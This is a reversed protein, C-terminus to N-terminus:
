CPPIDSLVHKGGSPSCLKTQATPSLIFNVRYDWSDSPSRVVLSGASAANQLMGLRPDISFDTSSNFNAAALLKAGNLAQTGVQTVNCADTTASPPTAVIALTCDCGIVGSSLGVCWASGSGRVSVTVYDNRKAAELKAQAVAEVLDGAAGRVISRERVDIYSPAALAVLIAAIVIVVMLEILTFGKQGGQSLRTGTGGNKM